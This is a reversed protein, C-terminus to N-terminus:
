TVYEDNAMSNVAIAARQGDTYHSRIVNLGSILDAKQGETMGSHVIVPYEPLDVGEARLENWARVRQHGDLIEGNEDVRVPTIVGHKAVSSKFSAYEAPQMDPMIQYKAKPVKPLQDGLGNEETWNRIVEYARAISLTQDPDVNGWQVLDDPSETGPWFLMSARRDITMLDVWAKLVRVPMKLNTVAVTVWAMDVENDIRLLQKAHGENIEGTDLSNQLGKPMKLLRLKTAIYSQGKGIRKGLETQSIGTDLLARYANAEEIPTLDDRQVNEVLAAWRAGGADIERVDAAITEWGLSQVARYRREGAVIIYGDDDQRLLIPSLLGNAKISQALEAISDADFKKRPQSDDRRIDTLLIDRSM